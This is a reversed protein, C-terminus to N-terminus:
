KGDGMRKQHLKDLHKEEDAVWGRTVRIAGCKRLQAGFFAALADCTELSPAWREHELSCIAAPTRGIADGVGSLTLGRAERLGRLREGDLEIRVGDRTYTVRM